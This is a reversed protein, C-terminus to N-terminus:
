RNKEMGTKIESRIYSGGILLIIIFAIYFAFESIYYRLDEM